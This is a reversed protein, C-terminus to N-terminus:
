EQSTFLRKQHQLCLAHLWTLLILKLMESQRRPLYIAHLYSSPKISIYNFDLVLILFRLYFSQIVIEVPKWSTIDALNRNTM